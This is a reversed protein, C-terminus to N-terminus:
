NTTKLKPPLDLLWLKKYFSIYVDQIYNLTPTHIGQLLLKYGSRVSYEGSARGRWILKDDHLIRPLPIRLIRKADATNFTNNILIERWLRITSDILDTVVCINLNNVYNQIKFNAARPLWADEWISIKTGIGVRWCM